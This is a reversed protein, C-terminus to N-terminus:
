RDAGKKKTDVSIVPEGEQLFAQTQRQIYRFPEDREPAAAKAEKNRVNGRLSYGMERLLRGLTTRSVEHGQEHLRASLQRLSSRKYLRPGQPDGATEPELLARAAAVLEPDRVRASPRGGGAQRLRGPPCAELDREFENRGRRVTTESLGTIRSAQRDGGHGIRLSELGAYWRRQREDLRSLLVNM